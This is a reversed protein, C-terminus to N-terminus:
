VINAEGELIFGEQGVVDDVEFLELGALVSGEAVGEGPLVLFAGRRNQIVNQSRLQLCDTLPLPLPFPSPPLPFPFLSSTLLPPLPFPSLSFPPCQIWGYLHGRLTERPLPFASSLVTFRERFIDWCFEKGGWPDSGRAGLVEREGRSGVGWEGCGVGGM